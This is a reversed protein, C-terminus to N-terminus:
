LRRRIKEPFIVVLSNILREQIEDTLIGDPSFRDLIWEAVFTPISRSMLGSDLFLGKNICVEGFISKVKHEFTTTM